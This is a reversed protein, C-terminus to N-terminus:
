LHYGGCGRTRREGLIRRRAERLDTIREADYLSRDRLPVNELASIEEEIKGLPLTFVDKSLWRNM